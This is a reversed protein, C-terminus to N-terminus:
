ETCTKELQEDIDEEVDKEHSIFIIDERIEKKVREVVDKESSIVACSNLALLSLLSLILKNM